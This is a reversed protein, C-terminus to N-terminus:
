TKWGLIAQDQDHCQTKSIGLYHKLITNKKYQRVCAEGQYPPFAGWGSKDKDNTLKVVLSPLVATECGRM